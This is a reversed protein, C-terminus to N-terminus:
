RSFFRDSEKIGHQKDSESLLWTHFSGDVKELPVRILISGGPVVEMVGTQPFSIAIVAEDEDITSTYAEIGTRLGFGDREVRPLSSVFTEVGIKLLNAVTQSTTTKM